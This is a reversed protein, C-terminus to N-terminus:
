SAFYLVTDNPGAPFTIGGPITPGVFTFQQGNPTVPAYLVVWGKAPNYIAIGLTHGAPNITVPLTGAVTPLAGWTVNANTVFQVYFLADGSYPPTQFPTGAPNAPEAYATTVTATTGQASGAPYTLMEAFGNLTPLAVTAGQPVFVLTESASSPTPTPAPPQTSGGNSCAALVLASTVAALGLQSLVSNTMM